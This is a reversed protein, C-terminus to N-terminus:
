DARASDALVSIPVSVVNPDGWATSIRIQRSMFQMTTTFLNGVVAAVRGACDFVPAGSAGSDLVLRDNGDYMELLAMGALRDSDGYQVFRGEALRLRGGPYALSVVREEPILPETRVRFGPADGFATRLQLVAIKEAYSGSVHQVRMLISQKSEARQVEIQTWDQTSLRMAATVHEVTVMTTPSLLWATGRIGLLGRQAEQDKDDFFRTISVTSHALTPPEICGAQVRSSAVILILFIWRPMTSGGPQVAGVRTCGASLVRTLVLVENRRRDM